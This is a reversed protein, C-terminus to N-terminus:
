SQSICPLLERYSQAQHTPLWRRLVHAIGAVLTSHRYDNPHVALRVVPQLALAPTSFVASLLSAQLRLPSRSAFSVAPCFLSSHRALDHVRLHDECYQLGNQAVATAVQANQLWAPAVFGAPQAGLTERLVELGNAIRENAEALDLAQFEGEGATLAGALLQQSARRHRGDDLHWYGHLLIEDRPGMAALLRECFGPFRRLDARHHFDPVVLLSLAAVGLGRLHSIATFVTDEHAPTVDHLSVLATRPPPSSHKAAVTMTSKQTSCFMTQTPRLDFCDPAGISSLRHLLQALATYGTIYQFKLTIEVGRGLPPAANCWLQGCLPTSRRWRIGHVAAISACFLTIQCGARCPRAANTKNRPASLMISHAYARM